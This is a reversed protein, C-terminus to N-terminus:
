LKCPDWIWNEERQMTQTELKDDSEVVIKQM